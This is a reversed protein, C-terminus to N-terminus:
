FGARGPVYFNGENDSCNVKTLKRKATGTCYDYTVSEAQIGTGTCYDYTVAEAQIGTAM